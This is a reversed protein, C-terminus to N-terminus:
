GVLSGPLYRRDYTYRYLHISIEFVEPRIKKLRLLLLRLLLALYFHRIYKTLHVSSSEREVFKQDSRIRQSICVLDCSATELRIQYRHYISPRAIHKTRTGKHTPSALHLFLLPRFYAQSHFAYCVLTMYDNM